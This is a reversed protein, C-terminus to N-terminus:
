KCMVVCTEGCEFNWYYETNQNTISKFIPLSLLSLRDWLQVLFRGITPATTHLNRSKLCFSLLHIIDEVSLSTRQGLSADGKLREEAVKVVLDIPIKPFLLVINFSALKDGANLIKDRTFDAFKCSNKNTYDTNRVVPSLIRRLYSSIVSTQSNIFSVIPRM